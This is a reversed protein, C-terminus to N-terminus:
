PQTAHEVHQKNELSRVAVYACSTVSLFLSLVESDGLNHEFLGQVLIALITAIAAHLIFRADDPGSPLRGLARFFDSLMRGLMWLLALLTPIGREAAYHLYINHLHGYWGEPLQKVDDPVWRRFQAKVQEPGLGLLPHAQIMRLGTRWSVRRHENSDLEGQPKWASTLRQQLFRPAALFAVAVVVPLVLVSLRRWSWLLYAGSIATALWVSRTGGAFIAAAILGAALIWVWLKRKPPGAFFVYSGLLLLAVTMQGGFTMWHSMFGSIREGVMCGYSGGCLKLMSNFQFLARLASLAALAGMALFLRRVQGLSRFTSSVLLLILFLYFKRIQVRGGWPDASVALSLVTGLVFLGLPLGIPPFRLRAGSLLLAALALAILINSVAGSVFVAASAGFALLYALKELRPSPTHTTM